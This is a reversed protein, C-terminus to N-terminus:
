AATNETGYPNEFAHIEVVDELAVQLENLSGSNYGLGRFTDVLEQDSLFVDGDELHTSLKEGMPTVAKENCISIIYQEPFFSGAADTNYYIGEGPEMCKLVFRVHYHASITRYADYLPAWAAELNLLIGQPGLEMYTVTGRLSIGSAPIGKYQFLNGIWAKQPDRCLIVATELDEWLAQLGEPNTDTYFYVDDCCVNAM